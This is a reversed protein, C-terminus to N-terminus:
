FCKKKKRKKKKEGQLEQLQMFLAIQICLKRQVSSGSRAESYIVRSQFVLVKAGMLFSCIIVTSVCGRSCGDPLSTAVELKKDGGVLCLNGGGKSNQQWHKLQVM